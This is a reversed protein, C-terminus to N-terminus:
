AGRRVDEPDAENLLAESRVYRGLNEVFLADTRATLGSGIASAHGTLTVRPHNWFPSNAPLPETRFVDLIAHEPVGRGLSELLAAEDVLGGRGVNVLVSTPKMAALFTANVLADTEGTLPLSLVVVDADRLAPQLDAPALM